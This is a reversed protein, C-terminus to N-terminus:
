QGLRQWSKKRHEQNNWDEGGEEELSKQVEGDSGKHEEEFGSGESESLDDRIRLVTMQEDDYDSGEGDEDEELFALPFNESVQNKLYTQWTIIGTNVDLFIGAPDLQEYLMPQTSYPM